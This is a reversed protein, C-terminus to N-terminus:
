SFNIDKFKYLSTEFMALKEVDTQSVGAAAMDRLVRVRFAPTCVFVVRAWRLQDGLLESGSARAADRLVAGLWKLLHAYDKANKRSREVEVWWVHQGSRLLADPLKGAVGAEGGLWRGQSIERETSAKFGQVIAGIAVENAICRHRFHSVSFNRVLDKGTLAEVGLGRLVRAGAEAIAYITSGDPGMGQLLLHAERMRRLTRQAMRLGAAAAATPALTPGEVPARNAWRQWVIAAIDRTRLWGFRHLARLVRVENDHALARGDKNTM